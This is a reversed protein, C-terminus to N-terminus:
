REAPRGLAARLLAFNTVGDPGCAVGEGYNRESADKRCEM